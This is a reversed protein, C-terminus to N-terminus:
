NLSWLARRQEVMKARVDREDPGDPRLELYRALDELAAAPRGAAARLLGRDRTEDPDDPLLLLLREVAATAERLQGRRLHSGKLNRNIRALVERATAPRLLEDDWEVQGGTTRELIGRCDEESLERGGEFPDLLLELARHRVLFHGPFGVGVLPLDLRRAVEVLVVALTIPMGKGRELVRDLHSNDPDDYTERDGQLRRDFLFRCLARVRDPEDAAARVAPAAEAALLDLRRLGADVDVEPRDDQAILLAGLGLDIEDDAQAALAALRERPNM